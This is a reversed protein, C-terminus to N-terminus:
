SYKMREAIIAISKELDVTVIKIFFHEVVM